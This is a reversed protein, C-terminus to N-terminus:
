CLFTLRHYVLCPGFLLEANDPKISYSFSWFSLEAESLSALPVCECYCDTKTWELVNGPPLPNSSIPKLLVFTL